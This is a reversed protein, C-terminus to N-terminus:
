KTLTFSDIMMGDLSYAKGDIRDKRATLIV